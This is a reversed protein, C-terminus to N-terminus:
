HKLQDCRLCFFEYTVLTYTPGRWEFVKSWQSQRNVMDVFGFERIVRPDFYKWRILNELKYADVLALQEHTLGRPVRTGRANPEVQSQPPQPEARAMTRSTSAEEYNFKLAQEKTRGM